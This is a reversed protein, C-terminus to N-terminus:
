SSVVKKQRQAETEEDSSSDDSEGCLFDRCSWEAQRLMCLLCLGFCAVVFIGFYLAESSLRELTALDDAPDQVKVCASNGCAYASHAPLTTPQYCTVWDGANHIPLARTDGSTCAGGGRLVSSVGSVLLEPEWNAHAFATPPPFSTWWARYAQVETAATSWEPQYNARPTTDGRATPATAPECTTGDTCWAFMYTYTDYCFTDTKKTAHNHSTRITEEHFVNTIVCKSSLVRFDKTADPVGVTASLGTAVMALGALLGLVVIVSGLRQQCQNVM